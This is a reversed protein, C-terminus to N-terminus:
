PVRSPMRQSLLRVLTHCFLVTLLRSLRLELSLGFPMVYVCRWSPSM